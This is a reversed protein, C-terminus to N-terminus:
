KDFSEPVEVRVVDSPSGESGVLLDGDELLVISEGQASQPLQVTVPDTDDFSTYIFAQRYNRLVFREGDPAFSGGTVNPPADGIRELPSPKNKFLKPPAAYIGGVPSDKTVVYKRRDRPDILLAESDHPGDEFTLRFSLWPQEGDTLTEPERFWVLSVEDRGPPDSGGINGIWVNGDPLISLDEWDDDPAGVLDIAAKVAGDEALAFLQPGSGKDNHTYFIGPHTTSAALGSSETIRPDTITFLTNDESRVLTRQPERGLGCSALLSVSLVATLSATWRSM